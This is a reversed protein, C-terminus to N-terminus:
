LEMRQETRCDPPYMGGDAGGSNGADYIQYLTEKEGKSKEKSYMGTM